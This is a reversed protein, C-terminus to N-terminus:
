ASSKEKVVVEREFILEFYRASGYIGTGPAFIQVLRWGEAGHKEIIDQYDREPSTGFWNLGIRVFKYDFM